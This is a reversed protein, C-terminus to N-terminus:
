VESEKKRHEFMSMYLFTSMKRARRKLTDANEGEFHEDITQFWHNLWIGFENSTIKEGFHADVENHVAHPNGKYKKVAFLNTEWFDTLKELHKEWDKIMTNFYFGIEEDARIKAYFQHVLFEVDARNEIQKKM